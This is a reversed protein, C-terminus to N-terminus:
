KFPPPNSWNEGNENLGIRVELDSDSDIAEIVDGGGWQICDNHFCTARIWFQKFTTKSELDIRNKQDNIKLFEDIYQSSLVVNVARCISSTIRSAQSRPALGHLDMVTAYEIHGAIARRCQFKNMSGVNVVGIRKCFLLIQDISLDQISFIQDETGNANCFIINKAICFEESYTPSKPNPDNELVFLFKNYDNSSLAPLPKVKRM